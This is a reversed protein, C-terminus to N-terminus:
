VTIITINGSFEQAIWEKGSFNYITDFDLCHFGFIVRNEDAEMCYKYTGFEDIFKFRKVKSSINQFIVDKVILNDEGIELKM